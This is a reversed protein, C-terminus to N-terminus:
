ENKGKPEKFADKIIPLIIDRWGVDM